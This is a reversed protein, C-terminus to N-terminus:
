RTCKMEDFKGDSLPCANAWERQLANMENCTQKMRGEIEECTRLKGKSCGGGGCNANNLEQSQADIEANKEDILPGYKDNAEECKIADEEVQQADERLTDIQGQSPVNPSPQEGLETATLIGGAPSNGDYVTGAVNSAYEAPCGGGPDCLGPPPAAAMSYARGEALQYMATRKTRGRQTGKSGSIAANMKRFQRGKLKGGLVSGKKVSRGTKPVNTNNELASALLDKQDPNVPRGMTQSHGSSLGKFGKLNEFDAVPKESGADRGDGDRAGITKILDDNDLKVADELDKAENPDLAGAGELEDGKGVLEYDEINERQELGEGGYADAGRVLNVTSEGYGAQAGGAGNGDRGFITGPADLQRDRYGARRDESLEALQGGNIGPPRIGLQKAIPGLVPLGLIVNTPVVFITALLGVM